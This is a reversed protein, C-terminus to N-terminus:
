DRPKILLSVLYEQAVDQNRISSWHAFAQAATRCEELAETYTWITSNDYDAVHRRDQLRAFAGALARLAQVVRPDQGKYPSKKHDAIRSSVKKMLAHDFM